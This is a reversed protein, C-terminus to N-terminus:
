EDEAMNFYFKRGSIMTYPPDFGPMYTARVHREIKESPWQLDIEKIESIDKRYHISCSRTKKLEEQSISRYSGDIVNKIERKFLELSHQYTLEYLDSVFCNEPIPFRSEAIFDGSDIGEDIKHITTGFIKDGNLIAFSFQNCGRYEPLPAMHLNIAIQRAKLIHARKLIEHYQVSILIDVRELKLYDELSDIVKINKEECLKNVSLRRDFRRNDNTLVAVIDIGYEKRKEILFLLSNYGIPKSGMFVVKKM